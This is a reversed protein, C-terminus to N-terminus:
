IFKVSKGATQYKEMNCCLLNLIKLFWPKSKRKIYANGIIRM